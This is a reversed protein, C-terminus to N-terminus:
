GGALCVLDFSKQIPAQASDFARNLLLRLVSIEQFRIMINRRFRIFKLLLLVEFLNELYLRIERFQLCYM